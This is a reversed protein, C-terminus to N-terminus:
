QREPLGYLYHDLNVSADAPLGTAKAIVPGLREAITARRTEMEDLQPEAALKRM